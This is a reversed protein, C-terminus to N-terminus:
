QQKSTRTPKASSFCRSDNSDNVPYAFTEHRRLATHERSIRRPGSDETTQSPREFSTSAFLRELPALAGTRAAGVFADRLRAQEVSSVPAHRGGSVHERARTVLQRANAEEIRLLHAIERYPHNFAERLVFAARETPLLKELLRLVACDLAEAREAKVGPDAATDVLELL